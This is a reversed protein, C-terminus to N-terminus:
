RCSWPVYSRWGEIDETKRKMDVYSLTILDDLIGLRPRGGHKSGAMRGEIAEMLLRDERLVHGIWRKKRNRLMHM